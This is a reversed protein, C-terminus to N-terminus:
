AARGVPAPVYALQTGIRQLARGLEVGDQKFLANLNSEAVARLDDSRGLVCVGMRPVEVALAGASAHGSLLAYTGDVFGRPMAVRPHVILTLERSAAGLGQRLAGTTGGVHDVVKVNRHHRAAFEFACRLTEDESGGDAIVVEDGARLNGEIAQLCAALTAAGDRVPVVISVPPHTPAPAPPPAMVPAAPMQISVDEAVDVQRGRRLLGGLLVDAASVSKEDLGQMARYDVTRVALFAGAFREAPCVAAVRADVFRTALRELWGSGVEADRDLFVLVDGEASAAAQNCARVFGEDKENRIVRIGELHPLALRTDDTSGNDVVIVERRVGGSREALALLSRFTAEWGNTVPVVVTASPVASFPAQSV